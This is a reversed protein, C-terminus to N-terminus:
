GHAVCSTSGNGPLATYSGEFKDGGIALLNEPPIRSARTLDSPRSRTGTYIYTESSSSVAICVTLSVRTYSVEYVQAYISENESETM